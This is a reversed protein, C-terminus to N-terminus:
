FRVHARLGYERPAGYFENNNFHGSVYQKNTLNTGYGEIMWKGRRLTILASLLGRGRLRDTVPSYFLNTFQPGVYAYNLRPTLSTKDDFSIEYDIGFNYSLKPSLLNPGGGADRTYPGYSTCGPTVVAGCQPGLTTGPPVLLQNVATLRELHSHVYAFGGDVDFHGIRAQVQGEVGYISAHPINSVGSQGSSTDIVSFQFDHYDMYFAGLQTRLHNDLMTSKWGAEYDWVTEPGFESVSSNAGGPKYGRAAFAYILNDRDVQFNINAKGTLRGDKHRSGLDAVPLGTPGFITGYGIAVGGEQRVAYHSYRTGLQFEIRDTIKYGAQAFAGLTTKFDDIVIHTPDVPAGSTQSIRVHIVNHQYYGGLIWNFRGTTPSILNLEQVLERESVFQNETAPPPLVTADSDYLNYIRKFVYGTLSRLTIDGPLRYRLELDSQFGREDNKTPADYDLTRIDGVRGAAYPTGIIPRYAYGGTDHDVWEAHAIAQLDGPTWRVSIRADKENLRGAENHYSGIDTFYSDHQQYNGAGRIALNSTVPINLAGQLTRNAYNGFSGELYGGWKGLQPAQSNIFVAGGTSNSGVLTGQPGRLVEIGALDYFDSTSVIPPQFVGNVYLAVGNAVSPNGDAIGIGRINVSQTLGADTVSLSPAAFQLDAVRAVAKENLQDGALATAAIPVNQLNETRRQATVVIERLSEGEAPAAQSGPAAGQATQALSPSSGAILALIATTTALRIRM